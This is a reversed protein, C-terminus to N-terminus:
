AQHAPNGQCISVKARSFKRMREVMKKQERNSLLKRLSQKLLTLDGRETADQAKTGFGGISIMMATPNHM